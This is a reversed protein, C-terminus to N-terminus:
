GTKIWKGCRKKIVRVEVGPYQAEVMKKKDRFASTIVGKTDDFTVTGDAWFVLYDVRYTVNGVLHFPVQRLFFVVHGADQLTELYDFYEAELKSGFKFGKRETIKANFKHRPKKTKTLQRYEQLKM